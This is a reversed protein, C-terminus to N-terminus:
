KKPPEGKPAAIAAVVMAALTLVLWAGFCKELIEGFEERPFIELLYSVGVVALLIALMIAAAQMTVKMRNSM